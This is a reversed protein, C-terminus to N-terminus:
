VALVRNEDGGLKESLAKIKAKAEVQRKNKLHVYLLSLVGLLSTDIFQDSSVIGRTWEAATSILCEVIQRAIVEAPSWSHLEGADQMSKLLIKFAGGIYNHFDEHFSVLSSDASYYAYIMTSTYVPESLNFEASAAAYAILQEFADLDKHDQTIAGMVTKYTDRVSQSVLADKSGFLNYLTKPTVGAALALDRMTIGAIGQLDIQRRLERLIKGRKGTPESLRDQHKVSVSM